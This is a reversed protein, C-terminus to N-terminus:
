PVREGRVMTHTLFNVTGNVPITENTKGCWHCASYTIRQVCPYVWSSHSKIDYSCILYLSETSVCDCMSMKM